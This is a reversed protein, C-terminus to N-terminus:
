VVLWGTKGVVRKGLRRVFCVQYPFRHERTSGMNEGEVYRKTLSVFIKKETFGLVRRLVLSAGGNTVAVLDGVELPFGAVDKHFYKGM